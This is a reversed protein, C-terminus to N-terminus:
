VEDCIFKAIRYKHKLKCQLLLLFFFSKLCTLKLDLSEQLIVIVMTKTNLNEM